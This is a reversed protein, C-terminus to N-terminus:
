RKEVRVVEQCQIPSFFPYLLFPVNNNAQKKSILPISIRPALKTKAALIDLTMASNFMYCGVDGLLLWCCCVVLWCSAGCKYVGQFTGLMRFTVCNRFFDAAPLIMGLLVCSLGYDAATSLRFCGWIECRSNFQFCLGM